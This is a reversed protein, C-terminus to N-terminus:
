LVAKIWGLKESVDREIGTMYKQMLRYDPHLTKKNVPLKIELDKVESIKLKEVNLSAAQYFCVGVSRNVCLTLVNGAHVNEQNGITGIVGNNRKSAGILQIDGPIAEEKM